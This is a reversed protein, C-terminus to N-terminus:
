QVSCCLNLQIHENIFPLVERLYGERDYSLLNGHGGGEVIWLRKPEGAAEYLDRGHQVPIVFDRTGHIFLVPRGNLHQLADIPRIATGDIGALRGTLWTILDGWPWGPLGVRAEVGDTAVAVLSTYATDVVLARVRPLQEMALLATAGGMSHGYVAIRDPDIEPQRSLFEYAAVVDRVEQPGMTTVEGESSGHNRLDFLLLGYGADAYLRAEGRFHSRNGAHGHIFLIAAGTEGDPVVPPVYWGRLALGDSTTFTVDRAGPLGSAAATITIAASPPSALVRAQITSLVVGIVLFGAFGCVLAFLGLNRLRKM